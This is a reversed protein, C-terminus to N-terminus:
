CALHPEKCYRDIMRDIPDKMFFDMSYRIEQIDMGGLASIIPPGIGGSWSPVPYTKSKKIASVVDMHKENFDAIRAEEGKLVSLSQYGGDQVFEIFEKLDSSYREGDEGLVDLDKRTFYKPYAYYKALDNIFVEADNEYQITDTTARGFGLALAGAIATLGCPILVPITPGIFAGAIGSTMVGFLGGMISYFGNIAAKEARLWKVANPGYDKPDPVEMDVWERLRDIKSYFADQTFRFSNFKEALPKVDVPATELIDQLSEIVAKKNSTLSLVQQTAEKYDM